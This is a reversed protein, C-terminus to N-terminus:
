ANDNEGEEEGLDIIQGCNECRHLRWVLDDYYDRVDLCDGCIPCVCYADGFRDTKTNPKRPILKELASISTKVADILKDAYCERNEPKLFHMLYEITEEISGAARSEWHSWVGDKWCNRCPDHEDNGEHRCSRCDQMM